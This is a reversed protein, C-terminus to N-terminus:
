SELSFVHLSVKINTTGPTSALNELIYYMENEGMIAAENSRIAVLDSGITDLNSGVIKPVFYTTQSGSLIADIILGTSGLSETAFSRSIETTNSFVNSRSYLRIRARTGSGSLSASVLLYTRPVTPDSLTGTVFTGTTVLSQIYPVTIRNITNVTSDELLYRNFVITPTSTNNDIRYYTLKNSATAVVGYTAPDIKYTGAVSMSFDGILAINNPVFNTTFPRIKETADDRSQLNDYLRLRCPINSQLTLLMYASGLEISGSNSANAQLTVNERILSAGDRIHDALGM